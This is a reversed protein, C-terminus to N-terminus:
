RLVTKMKVQKDNHPDVYLQSKIELDELIHFLWNIFYDTQRLAAVRANQNMMNILKYVLRCYHLISLSQDFTITIQDAINTATTSVSGLM